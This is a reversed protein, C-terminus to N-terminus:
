KKNKQNFIPSISITNNSNGNKYINILEYNAFECLEEITPRKLPDAN